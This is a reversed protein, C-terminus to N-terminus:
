KEIKGGLLVYDNWFNYYSKTVSSSSKLEIDYKLSLIAFSMALRHDNNADLLNNKYESFNKVIIEDKIKINAGCNILQNIYGEVRNSEKLRNREFNIFRIDRKEFLAWICLIPLLDPNDKLDILGDNSKLINIINKDPHNFKTIDELFNIEAGLENAVLWFSLSSYDIPIEYSNNKYNFSKLSIEKLYDEYKFDYSIGYNELVEKTSILYSSSELEEKFIIKIKKNIFPLVLLLGSIYQSSNCNKVIIDEKFIDSIDGKIEILSDSKKYDIKHKKFMDEYFDLPRSLLKYSGTLKIDKYKYLLVLMGIRLSTASENCDLVGKEYKNNKTNIIIYDDFYKVSCNLAILINLTAKIDESLLDVEKIYIKFEDELLLSIYLARIMHTKSKPISIKGKLNSKKLKM